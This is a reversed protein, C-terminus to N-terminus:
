VGVVCLWILLQSRSLMRGFVYGVSIGVYVRLQTCCIFCGVSVYIVLFAVWM